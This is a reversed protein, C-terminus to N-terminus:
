TAVQSDVALKIVIIAHHFFFSYIQLMLSVGSEHVARISARCAQGREPISSASLILSGIPTYGSCFESM